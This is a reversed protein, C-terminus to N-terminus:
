VQSVGDDLENQQESFILERNKVIPCTYLITKNKVVLFLWSFRLNKAPPPSAAMSCGFQKPQSRKPVSYFRFPFIFQKMKVAKIQNESTAEVSFRQFLGIDSRGSQRPPRADFYCLKKAPSNLPPLLSSFFFWSNAQRPWLGCGFFTLCPRVRVKLDCQSVGVKKSRLLRLSNCGCIVWILLSKLQWM